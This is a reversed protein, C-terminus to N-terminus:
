TGPGLHDVPDAVFMDGFGPVPITSRIQARFQKLAINGRAMEAWKPMSVCILGKGLFARRCPDVTALTAGNESVKGKQPVAVFFYDQDNNPRGVRFGQFGPGPCGLTPGFPHGPDLPTTPGNQPTAAWQFHSTADQFLSGHGMTKARALESLFPAQLQCLPEFRGSVPWLLGRVLDGM